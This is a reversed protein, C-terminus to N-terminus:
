KILAQSNVALNEFISILQTKVTNQSIFLSAGIEKNTLGDAM